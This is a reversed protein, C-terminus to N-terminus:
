QRVNVMVKPVTPYLTSCFLAGVTAGGLSRERQLLAVQNTAM